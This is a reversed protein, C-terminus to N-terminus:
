AKRGLPRHRTVIRTGTAKYRQRRAEKPDVTLARYVEVRDAQRLVTDLPQLRGWIGVKLRSIAEPEFWGCASLLQALTCGPTVTLSQQRLEGRVPSWCLEIQLDGPDTIAPAEAIATGEVRVDVPEALAM